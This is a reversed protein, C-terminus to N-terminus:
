IKTVKNTLVAGSTAAALFVCTYTGDTNDTVDADVRAGGAEGGRRLPKAFLELMDGGMSRPNGFRDTARVLLSLPKGTACNGLADGSVVCTDPDCPGAVVQLTRPWGAAACDGVLAAVSYAGSVM